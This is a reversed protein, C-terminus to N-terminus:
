KSLCFRLVSGNICATLLDRYVELTRKLKHENGIIFYVVNAWPSSLTWNVGEWNNEYFFFIKCCEDREYLIAFFLCIQRIGEKQWILHSILSTFTSFIKAWEVKIREVDSSSMRFVNRIFYRCLVNKTIKLVNWSTAIEKLPGELYSALAAAKQKLLGLGVTEKAYLCLLLNSVQFFLIITCPEMWDFRQFENRKTGANYCCTWKWM